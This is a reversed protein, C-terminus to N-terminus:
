TWAKKRPIPEYREFEEEDQLDDWEELIEPVSAYERLGQAVRKRKRQTERNKDTPLEDRQAKRPM